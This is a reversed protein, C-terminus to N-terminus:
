SVVVKDRKGVNSTPPKATPKAKCGDKRIREIRRMASAFLKKQEAKMEKAPMSAWKERIAHIEEISKSKLAM